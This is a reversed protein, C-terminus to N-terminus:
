GLSASLLSLILAMSTFSVGHKANLLLVIAIVTGVSGIVMFPKRVMLKDSIYGILLLAVINVGWYIEQIGNFSSLSFGLFEPLYFVFYAIATFYIILFLNIAIPSLVTNVHLMQRWRNKRLAELDLGEAKAEVLARENMAAMRQSRVGPSLERLFILCIVFMVVAAYGSFRYLQQWNAFTVAQPLYAQAVASLVFYGAVPGLTWFGMALGRQMQPSFDRVLAPTGVFIAGDAFYLVCTFVSFWTKSPADPVAWLAFVANVLLGIVVMNARGWRDGFSTIYAAVGGCVGAVVLLDAYYNLTMGFHAFMVPSAATGAAVTWTFVINALVVISLLFIRDGGTPYGSLERRWLRIEFGSSQGTAPISKATSM